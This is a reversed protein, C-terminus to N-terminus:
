KSIFSIANHICHIAVARKLNSTSRVPAATGSGISQWADGMLPWGRKPGFNQLEFLRDRVGEWKVEKASDRTLDTGDKIIKVLIKVRQHHEDRHSFKIRVEYYACVQPHPRFSGDPGHGGRVTWLLCPQRTENILSLNGLFKNQFGSLRSRSDSHRGRCDEKIFNPTRFLLKSFDVDRGFYKSLSISVLNEAQDM